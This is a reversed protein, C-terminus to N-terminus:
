DHSVVCWPRHTSPVIRLTRIARIDDSIHSAANRANDRMCFALRRLNALSTVGVGAEDGGGGVELALPVLQERRSFPCLKHETFLPYLSSPFEGANVARHLAISAQSSLDHAQTFAKVPVVVRFYTALPIEQREPRHRDVCQPTLAPVMANARPGVLPHPPHAFTRGTPLPSPRERDPPPEAIVM